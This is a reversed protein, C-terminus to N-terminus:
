GAAASGAVRAKAVPLLKALQERIEAETIAEGNALFDGLVKKIIEDDHFRAVDAQALSTAYAEAEAPRLHLTQAAWQGLLRNRVAHVRFRIEQDHAFKQEFAHEREDFTTM